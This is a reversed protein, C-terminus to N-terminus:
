KKYSSITKNLDNMFKNVVLEMVKDVAISIDKDKNTNLNCKEYFHANKGDVFFNYKM